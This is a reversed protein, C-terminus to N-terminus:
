TFLLVQGQNLRILAWRHRDNKIWNQKRWTRAECERPLHKPWPVYGALSQGPARLSLPAGVPPNRTRPVGVQGEGYNRSMTCYCAGHKPNLHNISPKLSFLVMRSLDTHLDGPSFFGSNHRNCMLSGLVKIDTPSLTLIWSNRSKRPVRQLVVAAEQALERSGGAVWSCALCGPLLQPSPLSQTPSIIQLLVM